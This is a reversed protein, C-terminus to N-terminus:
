FRDSLPRGADRYRGRPLRVLLDNAWRNAFRQCSTASLIRHKSLVAVDIYRPENGDICMVHPYDRHGGLLDNRFRKLTDQGEVEQLALIDVDVDNIVSSTVEKSDEDYIRFKTQNARWGDRVAVGPNTNAKFKFRALLNEVDFTAIHITPM